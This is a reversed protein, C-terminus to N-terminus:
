PTCQVSVKDVYAACQDGFGDQTVGFWLRVKRGAYPTLDVSISKWGSTYYLGWNFISGAIIGGAQSVPQSLLAGTDADFVKVDLWDYAAGDYTVINYDFKFTISSTDTPLKVDQYLTDTGFPEAGPVPPGRFRGGGMYPQDWRGLRGSYSGGTKDETVARVYGPSTGAIWGTFDGTEFGGNVVLEGPIHVNDNGRKQFVAFPASPDVYNPGAAIFAKSTTRDEPSLTQDSLKAFLATGKAFAFPSNVVKSYGFYTRAGSGIFANAMTDNTTSNCAGVYVISDPFGRGAYSRVFAPTIAWYGSVNRIRNTLWDGLHALTSLFTASERTLIVVDGSAAHVAGHATISIVGYKKLNKFANVDASANKLVVPAGGCTLALSAAINDTEDSPSFQDFFSALAIGLANGTPIIPAGQRRFVGATIFPYAASLPPASQLTTLSGRTGDPNTLIGSELGSTFKIWITIGDSALTVDAVGMQAKLFNILDTRAQDDGVILRHSDWFSTGANTVDIVRQIEADTPRHVIAIVLPPSLTRRITGKYAASAALSLSGPNAPNLTITATFTGDGRLADGSTAGDDYMRGLVAIGQGQDNLQVLNVSNPLLDGDVAVQATITFTVPAGAILTDQSTQPTDISHIAWALRPSAGLWLLAGFLVILSRLKRSM